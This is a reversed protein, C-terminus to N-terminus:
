RALAVSGALILSWAVQAEVKQRIEAALEPILPQKEAFLSERM